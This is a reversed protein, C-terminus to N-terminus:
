RASRALDNFDVGKPPTVIRVIRGEAHWRRAAAHAANLGVDDHDAAIFVEQVGAPLILAQMGGASLAALTSMGIAQLVSLGTEIGESVAVTQGVQQYALPVCAGHLDGLSLKAKGLPAKGSGDERLFTRHVGVINPNDPRVVGALMVPYWSEDAPHKGRVYRLSIPIAGVYGRARLYTEVVTGAAPQAREWMERAAEVSKAKRSPAPHEVPFQVSKPAQDGWLGYERLAQMIEQQSCGGAHCHFLTREDRDIVSFGTEYQCCPCRGTFGGKGTETLDLQYAIEAATTM